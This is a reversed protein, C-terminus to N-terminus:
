GTTPRSKKPTNVANRLARSPSFTVTKRAPITATTGTPLKVTRAARPRVNFSGFGAFRVSEGRKLGASITSLLDTVFATAQKRSLETHAAMLDDVLDRKSIPM